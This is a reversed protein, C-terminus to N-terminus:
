KQSLVSGSMLENLSLQIGLRNANNVCMNLTSKCFEMLFVHYIVPEKPHNCKYLILPKSTDIEGEIEQYGYYSIIKPDPRLNHAYSNRLKNLSELNKYLPEPIYGMCYLTNLKVYYSFNRKDDLIIDPKNCKAQILMDLTYETLLHFTTVMVLDDATTLRKLFRIQPAIDKDWEAVADIFLNMIDYAVLDMREM